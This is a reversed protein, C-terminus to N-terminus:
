GNSPKGGGGSAIFPKKGNNDYLSMKLTVKQTNGKTRSGEGGLEAGNGWVKFSIGGKGGISTEASLGLELVIEDVGFKLPENKGSEMASNLSKRLGALYEELEMGDIADDSM